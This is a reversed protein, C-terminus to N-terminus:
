VLLCLGNFLYICLQMYKLHLLFDFLIKVNQNTQNVQNDLAYNTYSGIFAHFLYIIYITHVRSEMLTIINVHM